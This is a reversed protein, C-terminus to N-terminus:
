WSLDDEYGLRILLDGYRAKFYAKHDPGFHNVWDGPVGKRYHSSVDEKGAIRGNAKAAFSNRKLTDVVVSVPLPLVRFPFASSHWRKLSSLAAAVGGNVGIRAEDVLGLFVFAQVLVEDPARIVDEMKLELVRPDVYDWTAIDDLVGELFDIVVFMGKDKDVEQLRRRHEVLEPWDTTPHSHLHSFYSSVVIDRPDRIVHFGRFDGLAFRDIVEVDRERRFLM